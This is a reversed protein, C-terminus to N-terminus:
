AARRSPVARSVTPLVTDQRAFPRIDPAMELQAQRPMFGVGNPSPARRVGLSGLRRGQDYSIEEGIDYGTLAQVPTADASFLSDGGITYHRVVAGEGALSRLNLTVGLVRYTGSDPPGTEQMRATEIRTTKIWTGDPRLTLVQRVFWRGKEGGDMERVYEGAVRKLLAGQEDRLVRGWLPDSLWRSSRADCFTNM